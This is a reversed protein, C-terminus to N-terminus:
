FRQLHKSLHHIGSFTNTLKLFKVLYTLSINNEACGNYIKQIVVLQLLTYKRSVITTRFTTFVFCNEIMVNWM